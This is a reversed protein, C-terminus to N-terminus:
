RRRSCTRRAGARGRPVATASRRDHPGAILGPGSADRESPVGADVPDRQDHQDQEEGDHGHEAEHGGAELLAVGELREVLPPEATAREAGPHGPEQQATVEVRRVGEDRHRRRHERGSGDRAEERHGVRDDQVRDDEDEHRPQPRDAVAVAVDGRGVEHAPAVVGAHQRERDRDGTEDRRHGVDGELQDADLRHELHDPETAAAVPQGLVQGQQDREHQQRRVGVGGPQSGRRHDGEDLVGQDVQDDDDRHDVQRGRDVAAPGADEAGGLLLHGGGVLGGALGHPREDGAGALHPGVRRQGEARRHRQEHVGVGDGRGEGGVTTRRDAAVGRDQRRVGEHQAQQGQEAPHRDGGPRSGTPASPLGLGCSTMGCSNSSEKELQNAPTAKAATAM